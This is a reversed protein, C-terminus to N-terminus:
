KKYLLAPYTRMLYAIRQEQNANSKPIWYSAYSSRLSIVGINTDKLLDCLMRQLSKESYAENNTNIFFYERPYDNVSDIINEILL